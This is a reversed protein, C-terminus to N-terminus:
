GKAIELFGDPSLITLANGNTVQFSTGYDSAGLLIETPSGVSVCYLIAYRALAIDGGSATFTITDADFVWVGSPSGAQALWTINTLTVGGSSYGNGAAIEALDSKYQNSSFDPTNNTLYCKFTDAGFRILGGGIAGIAKEFPTFLAM